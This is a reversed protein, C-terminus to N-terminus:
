ITVNTTIRKFYRCFSRNFQIEILIKVHASYLYKQYKLFTINWAHMTLQYGKTSNSPFTKRIDNYICAPLPRRNDWGLYGCFWRVLWRYAVARLYRLFNSIILISTKHWTCYRMYRYIIHPLNNIPSFDDLIIKTMELQFRGRESM